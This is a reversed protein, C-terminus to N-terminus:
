LRPQNKKLPCLPDIANIDGYEWLARARCGGRCKKYASCSRCAHNGCLKVMDVSKRWLDLFSANKINGALYNDGFFICPYFDGTQTIWCAEKGCHCGFDDPSVFWKKDNVTDPNIIEIKSKFNKIKDLFNLFQDQTILLDDNEKARGLLLIPTFRILDLKLDEVLKIIEAYQNINRSNITVRAALKATQCHRRLIKIGAITKDFTDLGRISEHNEKLGDISVTITDLNLANLKQANKETILLGNTVISVAIDKQRAYDIVEFLDERILPEGGGITIFFCGTKQMQDFLRFYDQTTLENEDAQDGANSLCHKCKLNCRKTFNLSIKMPSTLNQSPPNNITIVNSTLIGKAILDQKLIELEPNNTTMGATLLQKIRSTELPNLYYEKKDRASYIRSGFFEELFYTKHNPLDM